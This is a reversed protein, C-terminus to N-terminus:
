TRLVTKRFTLRFASLVYTLLFNHSCCLSLFISITAFGKRKEVRGLGLLESKWLIKWSTKKIDIKWSSLPLLVLEMFLLVCWLSIFSFYFLSVLSLPWMPGAPHLHRRRCAQLNCAKTTLLVNKLSNLWSPVFYKPYRFPSYTM